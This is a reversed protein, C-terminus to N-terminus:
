WGEVLTMATRGVDQRYMLRKGNPSATPQWLETFPNARHLVSTTGDIGARLLVHGADDYCTLFLEDDGAWDLGTPSCSRDLELDTHGTGRKFIRIISTAHDLRAEMFAIRSGDPSLDWSVLGGGDSVQAIQAGRGKDLDLEFIVFSAGRKEGVVCKDRRATCRVGAGFPSACGFTFRATELPARLLERSKGDALSSMLLRSVVGDQEPDWAIRWHLLSDNGSLVGHTDHHESALLPEPKNADVAHAFVDLRGSRNSTYIVSDDDRWASPWQTSADSPLPKPPATLKTRDSALEATQISQAFELMSLVVRKGDRSSSAYWLGAAPWSTLRRLPGSAKGTTPDISTEWLNSGHNDPPPETIAVVFRGDPFWLAARYATQGVLSTDEFALEPKGDPVRITEVRVTRGGETEVPRMLMLRQGNAAWRIGLEQAERRPMPVVLRDESRDAAVIRLGDAAAIALHKEDPSSAAMFAPAYLAEREGKMSLTWLGPTEGGTRCVIRDAGLWDIPKLEADPNDAIRHEVGTAIVRTFVGGAHSFAVQTGDASIAGITPGVSPGQTTLAKLRLKAADTLPAVSSASPAASGPAAPGDDGSLHVAGAVAAIALGGVVMIPWRLRREERAPAVVDGKGADHSLPDLTGSLGKLDALLDASTRYRDSVHKQLCRKAIPLLAPPVGTLDPEQQLPAATLEVRSAGSFPITGTVLKVLVVGVSFIDSRGDAPEGRAQEPSMYGPTGMPVGMATASDATVDSTADDTNPDFHKAIGFDLLKISGDDTRMVNEDKMDRHIIGEAHAAVLADVIAVMARTAAHPTLPGDTTVIERLTRGEVLEMAIYVTGDADIGVEYVTAIGSHRVAAAARAERLLRKRRRPDHLVRAPLVKLAVPRGLKQDMARYVVGMGGEGLKEVIRFHAVAEPLGPDESEPV